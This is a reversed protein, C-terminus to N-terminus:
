DAGAAEHSDQDPESIRSHYVRSKYDIIRQVVEDAPDKVIYKEHNVLTIVTDPTAEVLQILEANIFFKKGNLRTVSIMSNPPLLGLRTHM